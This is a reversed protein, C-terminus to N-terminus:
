KWWIIKKPRFMMREKMSKKQCATIMRLIRALNIQVSVPSVDKGHFVSNADAVNPSPTSQRRDAKFIERLRRRSVRRFFLTSSHFPLCGLFNKVWRRRRPGQGKGKPFRRAQPRTHLLHLQRQGLEDGARDVAPDLRTGVRGPRRYQFFPLFTFDPGVWRMRLANQKISTTM